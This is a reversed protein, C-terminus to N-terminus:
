RMWHRRSCRNIIEDSIGSVKAWFPINKFSEELFVLSAVSATQLDRIGGGEVGKGEAKETRVHARLSGPADQYLLCCGLLPTTRHISM